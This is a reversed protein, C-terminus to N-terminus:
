DATLQGTVLIEGDLASDLPFDLELVVIQDDAGGALDLGLNVRLGHVDLTLNLPVNARLVADLDRRAPGHLPIEDRRSDDNRVPRPELAADVHFLGTLPSARAGRSGWRHGSVHSRRHRRRRGGLGARDLRLTLRIGRAPAPTSDSGMNGGPIGLAPRASNRVRSLLRGLGRSYSTPGAGPPFM